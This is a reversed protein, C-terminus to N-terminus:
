PAASASPITPIPTQRCASAFEALTKEEAPDVTLHWRVKVAVWDVTYTCRDSVLPPMWEAPDRDGKSRNSSATVAFLAWPVSLDNAYAERQGATWAYAGSDWAEALPVLHDIDLRSSDTVTVGDYPSLWTGGTLRCGPGIQPPSIAEDILVENRTDCGDGNADIWLRFLDRQYGDRHEDAVPLSAVLATLPDAGASTSPSATQDPSRDAPESGATGAVAGPSRAPASGVGQTPVAPSANTVAIQNPADPVGRAGVVLLTGAVVVSILVRRGSPSIRV